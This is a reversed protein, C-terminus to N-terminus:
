VGRHDFTTVQVHYEHKTACTRKRIESTSFFRFCDSCLCREEVRQLCEVCVSSVYAIVRGCVRFVAERAGEIVQCSSKRFAKLRSLGGQSAVKICTSSRCTSLSKAYVRRLAQGRERGQQVAAAPLTKRTTVSWRLRGGYGRAPDSTARRVGRM